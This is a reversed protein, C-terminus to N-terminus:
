PKKASPVGAKYKHRSTLPKFSILRQRFPTSKKSVRLVRNKLLHKKQGSIKNDKREGM